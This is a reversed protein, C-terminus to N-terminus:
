GIAKKAQDLYEIANTANADTVSLSKLAATVEDIYDTVSSKGLQKLYDVNNFATNLKEILEDKQTQTYYSISRISAIANSINERIYGKDPEHAIRGLLGGTVKALDNESLHNQEENMKM